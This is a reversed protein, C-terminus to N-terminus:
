RMDQIAKVAFKIAREMFRDAFAGIEATLGDMLDSAPVTGMQARVVACTAQMHLFESEVIELYDKLLQDSDIM